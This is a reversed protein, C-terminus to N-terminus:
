TNDIYNPNSCDPPGAVRSWDKTTLTTTSYFDCNYVQDNKNWIFMNCGDTESCLKQCEFVDPINQLTGTLKPDSTKYGFKYCEM